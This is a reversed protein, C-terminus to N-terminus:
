DKVCRCSKRSYNTENIVVPYTQQSNMWIGKPYGSSDNTTMYLCYYGENVFYTSNAGGVGGPLASFGYPNNSVTNPQNWLLSTDKLMAAATSVGGVADFLIYWEAVSPIHWGAPCVGRVGSPAAATPAAGGLVSPWKYLRGYTECFTAINNYCLSSDAEYKLDEAMWVQNGICVTKYKKGDRSDTIEGGCGYCYTDNNYQRFYLRSWGSGREITDEYETTNDPKLHAIGTSDADEVLRDIILKEMRKAFWDTVARSYDDAQTFGYYTIPNLGTFATRIPDTVGKAPNPKGYGSYCMNGLIITEPMLPMTKIFKSTIYINYTRGTDVNNLYWNANGAEIKILGACALQGNKLMALRKNGLQNNVSEQLKGETTPKNNKAFRIQLGCMYADPLGHTDIIVLGFNKFENSKEPTCDANKVTTVQLQKNTAGIRTALATLEGPAYFENEAPAFLMVQNNEIYNSCTSGSLAKFAALGSGGGGGRFISYGNNDTLVISLYSATGDTVVIKITISDWVYVDTVNPQTRLWEATAMIAEQPTSSNAAGLEYLKDYGADLLDTAILLNGNELDTDDDPKCTALLLLAIVLPLYVFRRM